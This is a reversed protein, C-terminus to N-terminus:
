SEIFKHDCLSWLLSIKITRTSLQTSNRQECFYHLVVINIFHRLWSSMAVRPHSINCCTDHSIIFAGKYLLDESKQNSKSWSTPRTRLSPQLCFTKQIGSSAKLSPWPFSRPTADREFLELETSLLSNHLRLSTEALPQFVLGHSAAFPLSSCQQNRDPRTEM